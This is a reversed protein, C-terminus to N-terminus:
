HVTISLVVFSSLAPGAISAATVQYEYVGPPTYPNGTSGPGGGCGAFLALTLTLFATAVAVRQRIPSRNRRRLASTCPLLSWLGFPLLFGSRLGSLTAVSVSSSATSSTLMLQAAAVSCGANPAPAVPVCRLAIAGTYGGLSTVTLPFTASDGSSINAAGTSSGNVSLTFGPPESGTGTLSIITPSSPDSSTIVLSAARQGSASPAFSLQVTCTASAPLDAGTCASLLSFDPADAGAIALAINQLPATGVNALTLTQSASTTLAVSGFDLSTPRVQLRGALGTGTLNISQPSTVLGAPATVSGIRSGPASPTFTIVLSCSQGAALTAGNLPCATADVTFDGSATFVPVAVPLTTTNTVTATQQASKGIPVGGFKLSAPSLQLQNQFASGLLTVLELATSSNSSIELTGALAADSFQGPHFAVTILCSDEPQLM